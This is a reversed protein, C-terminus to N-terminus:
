LLKSLNDMSEAFKDLILKWDREYEDRLGFFERARIIESREVREGNNGEEYHEHIPYQKRLNKIMQFTVTLEEAKTADINQSIWKKLAQLSATSREEDRLRVRISDIIVSLICIRYLFNAHDRPPNSLDERARSYEFAYDFSRAFPSGFTDIFKKNLSEIKEFLTDGLLTRLPGSGKVFLDTGINRVKDCTGKLTNESNYSDFWFSSAMARTTGDVEVITNVLQRAIEESGKRASWIALLTGTISLQFEYNTDGPGIVNILYDDRDGRRPQLELTIEPDM